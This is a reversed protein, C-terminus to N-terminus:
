WKYGCSKCKFTKSIHGIAFVSFIAAAGVKNLKGIKAVRASGCAPCKIGSMYKSAEQWQRKKRKQEKEFWGAGLLRSKRECVWCMGNIMESLLIMEGCFRCAVKKIERLKSDDDQKPLDRGCFRCDIAEKKILEACFPCKKHGTSVNGLKESGTDINGKQSEEEPEKRQELYTKALGYGLKLAMNLNSDAKNHDGLEDYCIAKGLYAEACNKKQRLAMDYASIAGAYNGYTSLTNGKSYWDKASLGMGEAKRKAEEEVIRKTEQQRKAEEEAQKKAIYAEHKEYVIGCRPCQTDGTQRENGCKPCKKM